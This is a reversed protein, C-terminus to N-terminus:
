NGLTPSAQLWKSEEETFFMPHDSVSKPTIELWEKIKSSTKKLEGLVYLLPFIYSRWKSDFVTILKMGLETAEMSVSSIALVIPIAIVTENMRIDKTAHVGRYDKGYMVVKTSRIDCGHQKAWKIFEIHKVMEPDDYSYANTKNFKKLYQAIKSQELHTAPKYDLIEDIQELLISDDLDFVETRDLSLNRINNTLKEEELCHQMTAKIQNLGGDRVKNVGCV